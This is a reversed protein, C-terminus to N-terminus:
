RQNRQKGNHRDRKKAKRENARERKTDDRARLRAVSNARLTEVGGPARQARMAQTGTTPNEGRQTM